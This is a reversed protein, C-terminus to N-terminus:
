LGLAHFLFGATRGQTVRTNLYRSRPIAARFVRHKPWHPGETTAYGATQGWTFVIAMAKPVNEDCPLRQLGYAEHASAFAAMPAPALSPAGYARERGM